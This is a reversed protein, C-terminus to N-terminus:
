ESVGEKRGEKAGERGGKRGGERREERGGEWEWEGKGRGRGVCGGHDEEMLTDLDLEENQEYFMRYPEFKGQYENALQFAKSICDQLVVYVSLL